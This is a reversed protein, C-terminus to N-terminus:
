KSPKLYKDRNKEAWLVEGECTDYLDAWLNPGHINNLQMQFNGEGNNFPEIVPYKGFCIATLNEWPHRKPWNVTCWDVDKFKLKIAEGVLVGLDFGISIGLGTLKKGNSLEPITRIWHHSIEGAGVLLPRSLPIDELGLAKVINQIREDKIRLFWEHYIKVENKNWDFSTRDTLQLPM